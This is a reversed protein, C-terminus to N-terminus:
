ARNQSKSFNLDLNKLAPVTKTELRRGCQVCQQCKVFLCYYDLDPGSILPQPTDTSWLFIYVDEVKGMSWWICRRREETVMFLSPNLLRWGMVQPDPLFVWQEVHDYVLLTFALAMSCHYSFSLYCNGCFGGPSPDAQPPDCMPVGQLSSIIQM